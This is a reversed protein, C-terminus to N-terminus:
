GEHQNGGIWGLAWLAVQLRGRVNWKTMVRGLHAKVTAESLHLSNAIEMNTLGGILLEVVERERPALQECRAKRAHRSDDSGNAVRVLMQSLMLRSAFMHGSSVESVARYLEDRGADRGIVGRVGARLLAPVANFSDQPVVAIVFMEVSPGVFGAIVQAATLADTTVDYVVIPTQLRFYQCATLGSTQALPLTLSSVVKLRGKSSLLETLASAILPEASIVLM